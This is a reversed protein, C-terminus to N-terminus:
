SHAGSEFCCGLFKKEECPLSLLIQKAVYFLSGKSLTYFSAFVMKLVRVLVTRAWRYPLALHWSGRM